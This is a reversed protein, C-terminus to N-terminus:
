PSRRLVAGPRSGTLMGDRLVFQGNVLLQEVGESYHHPDAYSARDGIRDTDFVVVDAAAGAELRGRGPLYFIDAPVATMKRIAAELTLLQRERVYRGLVRPFAGYSRPHPHGQGPTVLDGDASVAAPEALLFADVDADSMAHFVAIFGGASQLEILADIGAELTPPRGTADLHDRLTRGTLSASAAAERFLISDLTGGTQARFIAQMEGAMRAHQAPDAVRQRFAATGGALAWPPFLVDSYTSFATYPYVDFTARRGADRKAQFADVLRRSCGWNAAGTCKVHSVHVPVEASRGVELAEALAADVRDGEDRLHTVYLSNPRRSTRTLAIVEDIGAYAAPVYELGTGLGVAGADMAETVLAEMRALETADPARDALGLVEKRIWTHGASWVTNPAVRLTDLYAELPYPQDLSHLSNVITTVGQRLYNEADPHQDIGSIHAHPEIFGPAVIRGTVDVVVRASAPDIGPAVEAIRSGTIAVDARRRPAGTGDVVTGGQLLLDFAPGAPASPGAGARGDVPASACGAILVFAALGTIPRSM